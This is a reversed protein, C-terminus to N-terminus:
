KILRYGYIYLTGGNSSYNKYYYTRNSPEIGSGRLTTSSDNLSSDNILIMETQMFYCALLGSRGGRVLESSHSSNLYIVLGATSYGSTPGTCKFFVMFCDNITGPMIFSGESEGSIFVSTITLPELNISEINTNISEINTNISSLLADTETKNYLTNRWDTVNNLLTRPYLQNYQSGDYSNMEINYQAM